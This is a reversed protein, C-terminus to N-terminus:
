ECSVELAKAAAEVAGGINITQETTLAGTFFQNGATVADCIAFFKAVKRTGVASPTAFKIVANNVMKAKV